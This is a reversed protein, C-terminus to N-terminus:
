MRLMAGVALSLVLSIGAGIATARALKRASALRETKTGDDPTRELAGELSGIYLQLLGTAVACVGFLSFIGYLIDLLM